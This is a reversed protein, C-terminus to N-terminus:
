RRKIFSACGCASCKPCTFWGCEYCIRNRCDVSTKCSWCHDIRTLNGRLAEVFYIPNQLTGVLKYYDEFIREHIREKLEIRDAPITRRQGGGEEVRLGANSRDIVYYQGNRDWYFKGAAIPLQGAPHREENGLKELGDLLGSIKTDFAPDTRAEQQLRKGVHRVMNTLTSLARESEAGSDFYKQLLVWDSVLHELQALL